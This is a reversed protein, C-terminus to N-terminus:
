ATHHDIIQTMVYQNLILNKDNLLFRNSYSVIESFYDHFHTIVKIELFLEAKCEISAKVFQHLAICGKLKMSNERIQNYLGDLMIMEMRLVYVGKIRFANRRGFSMLIAEATSIYTIQQYQFYAVM